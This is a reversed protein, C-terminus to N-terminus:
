PAFVERGQAGEVIEDLHFRLPWTQNGLWLRAQDAFHPSDVLGSQGGPLINQGEVRGDPHLAIVMRKVPGSKYEFREPRYGNDSADVSDNDGPRPFGVLARRPDGPPLMPMLPLVDTDIAFRSILLNFSGIDGVFPALISEFRVTHRLGWLWQRMDATGFGGEGDETPATALFDLTAQLALLILEDSREIEPTDLIDFLVSEQTNQDFSLLNRPNGEGRGYLLNVLARSVARDDTLRDGPTRPEDGLLAEAFRAQWANFIMTAVAHEADGAAPTHYFTEVGAPTPFGADRWASLRQAVEGFREANRTYLEAVRADAGMLDGGLASASALTDLLVPALREGMASRTDAQIRAMTAIDATRTTAAEAVLADIRAPRLGVDWPGGIYIDNALTGDLSLGSPDNNASVLYGTAPDRARPFQAYPVVCGPGETDSEDVTGDAALRLEFAGYRTGDLVLQPDAGPEFQRGDITRPHGARCPSAHYGTALLHGERDAAVFHSGFVALKRQTAEFEDLNKAEGLAYYTGIADGVDLYTADMSIATIVGNEDTDGPFVFGEGLNLGGVEGEARLRGEISLLRRGDFTTFRPQTVPGGASMLLAVARTEFTEDTRTVPRWEGQFLTAEPLGDAGLRVEERYYDLTDSYFCTFSWAVHGNTGVGLAPLGALFNGRVHWDDGGLVATDLGAQHFYAPVALPLHGDGALLTAGDTTHTGAVAWANSGAVKGARQRWSAVHAATRELLGAPFDLPKAPLADGPGGAPGQKNVPGGVTFVAELPELRYFIDDRLGAERQAAQPTGEPYAGFTGLLAATRELEGKDCRSQDLVVAAFALVDLVTFDEMLDIPQRAGLLPAALRMESPPPLEGARVAVLYGNVGEAFAELEARRAPTLADLLRQAAEPLGQARSTIDSDLLVDGVLQSLTGLALRRGLDMMWFRDRAFIFGHVRALDNRNNAFIHPVGGETEVVHVAAELGPLSRRSTEAVSFLAAQEPTTAADAQADAQADTPAADQPTADALRADGPTADGLTADEPTTKPDDDCAALAAILLYAFRKM